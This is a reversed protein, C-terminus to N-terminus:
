SMTLSNRQAPVTVSATVFSTPTAGTRRLFANIQRDRMQLSQLDAATLAPFGPFKKKVEANVADLIKAFAKDDKAFANYSEATMGRALASVKPANGEGKNVSVEIFDSPTAGLRFFNATVQGKPGNARAFRLDSAAFPKADPFTAKVEANAIELVSELAKPGGVWATNLVQNLRREVAYLQQIPVVTKHQNAAMSLAYYTVTHEKAATRVTFQSTAADSVVLGGGLKNGQIAQMAKANDFDFFKHENIIDYMLRQLDEASMTFTATVDAFPDNATVTGDTAVTLNPAANKRPPTFGGKFSFEVVLAKPDKPLLTQPPAVGPPLPAALFLAAFTLLM